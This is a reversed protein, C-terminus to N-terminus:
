WALGVLVVVMNIEAAARTDVVVALVAQIQPVQLVQPLLEAMVAEVTAVLALPLLVLM